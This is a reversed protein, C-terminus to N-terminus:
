LFKGSIFLCHVFQYDCMVWLTAWISLTSCKLYHHQTYSSWSIVSFTSVSLTKFYYCIILEYFVMYKYILIYEYSILLVHLVYYYIYMKSLVALRVRSFYLMKLLYLMSFPINVHMLIFNSAYRYGTYFWSWIFWFGSHSGYFESDVLLLCPCDEILCRYLFLSKFYFDM